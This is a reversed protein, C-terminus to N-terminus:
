GQTVTAAYSSIKFTKVVTSANILFTALHCATALLNVDVNKAM